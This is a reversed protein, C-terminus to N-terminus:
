SKAGRNRYEKPALGTYKKFILTFYKYDSYGVREAVEYVKFSVDDLLAKAKEVRFKNLWETFHEGTEEKFVRSFYNPTVFASNAVDELKIKEGYHENVYQMAVAVISKYRSQKYAEMADILSRFKNQLWGKVDEVTEYKEIEDYLLDLGPSIGSTGIGMQELLGAAQLLWKVSLTRVQEFPVRASLFHRFASELREHLRERDMAKLDLLLEREEEIPMPVAPEVATVDKDEYRIIQGKGRYVKSQLASLAQRYSLSAQELTTVPMGVAVTVSLKIYKRVNLRIEDCVEMIRHKNRTGVNLLAVIGDFEGIIVSCPFVAELLEEAINSVSFLLWEKEKDPANETLLLLDDIDIVLVQFEPGQLPIKLKMAKEDRDAQWRNDGRLLGNIFKARILPLNENWLLQSRLEEEQQREELRIDDSLKVVLKILEEAGVPKTLYESVGVKLAQRAYAFDDYGSLIVVRAHPLERKLAEALQLGDMVPMRVDTLVIHPKLALAMDLGEQGNRAEGAIEVGFQTWDISTRIGKRIMAEDDVIMMRIM